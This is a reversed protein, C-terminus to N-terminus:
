LKSPNEQVQVAGDVWYVLYKNGENNNSLMYWIGVTARPEKWFVLDFGNWHLWDLSGAPSGQSLSQILKYASM